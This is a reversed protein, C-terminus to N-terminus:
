AELLSVPSIDENEPAECINAPRESKIWNQLDNQFMKGPHPIPPFIMVKLRKLYALLIVAMIVVAAPILILLLLSTNPKQVKWESSWDSWMSREAKTESLRVRVKVSWTDESNHLNVCKSIDETVKLPEGWAGSSFLLVESILFIRLYSETWNICVQNNRAESVFTINPSRFKVITKAETHYLFPKIRYSTDTVVFMLEKVDDITYEYKFNCGLYLGGHPFYDKCETGTHLLDQFQMSENVNGPNTDKEWYLLKYQVNPPTEEGPQWICTIYDRYHWVCAVNKVLTRRNGPTLQMHSKNTLESETGNCSARIEFSFYDNLPFNYFELQYSSKLTTKPIAQKSAHLFSFRFKYRPTCNSAIPNWQLIAKFMSAMRATINSPPPLVNMESARSQLVLNLPLLLCLLATFCCITRM